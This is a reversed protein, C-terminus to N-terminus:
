RVSFSVPPSTLHFDTSDLKAYATYDGPGLPVIPPTATAAARVIVDRTVSGRAPVTLTTIVTLCAWGGGSPYIVADGRAIYPLISCSSPFTLKLDASDRNELQFVITAEGGSSIDSRSITASLTLPGDSRRSPASPTNACASMVVCAALVAAFCSLRRSM